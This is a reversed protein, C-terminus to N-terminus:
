DFFQAWSFTLYHLEDGSPKGVPLDGLSKTEALFRDLHMKTPGKLANPDGIPMLRRLPSLAM